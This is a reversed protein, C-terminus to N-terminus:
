AIEDIEAVGIVLDLLPEEPHRHLSDPTRARLHTKESKGATGSIMDPDVVADRV